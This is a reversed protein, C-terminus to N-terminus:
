HISILKYDPYYICIDSIFNVLRNYSLFYGFSISFLIELNAIVVFISIDYMTYWVFPYVEYM